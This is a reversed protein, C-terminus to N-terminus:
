ILLTSTQPTLLHCAEYESSRSGFIGCLSFRNAINLKLVMVLCDQLPSSFHSVNHMFHLLHLLERTYQYWGTLNMKINDESKHKNRVLVKYANRMDAMCLIHQVWRMRKQKPRALLLQHGHQVPKSHPASWCLHDSGGIQLIPM